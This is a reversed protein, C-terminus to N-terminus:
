DHREDSDFTECFRGAFSVPENGAYLHGTDGFGACRFTVIGERREETYLTTVSSPPAFFQHAFVVPSINLLHSLLVSELGFHCFLAITDRNGKETRYARGERTYGHKKLLEDLSCVVKEYEEGVRAKQYFDYETFPNLAYMTDEKTWYEPLMDWFMPREQGSPLTLPYDFEKLWPCITVEKERGQARAVYECTLKARGLPSSYFGDIREKQLRRALLEAERKGKETLSDNVYDPDGHRVILIRM